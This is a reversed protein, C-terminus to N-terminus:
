FGAQLYNKGYTFISNINLMVRLFLCKDWGDLFFCKYLIM